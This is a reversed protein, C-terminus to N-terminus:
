VDTAVCGYRGGSLGSLSPVSYFSARYEPQQNDAEEVAISRIHLTM